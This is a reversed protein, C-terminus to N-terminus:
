RTLAPRTPGTSSYAEIEQHLDRATRADRAPSHTLATAVRGASVIIGLNRRTPELDLVPRVAEAAGDLQDSNLRTLALNCQAGAQDGFAWHTAQPNSFAHAATEALTLVDTGRHNLLVRTEVTYYLQKAEPFTLLGGLHDLDDPVVRQRLTDARTLATTASEEDGLLAAARAELAALWVTVTGRSDHCAAAGQRAYHLAQGAQNSWYSILSKLGLTLGILGTHEAWQAAVGAARAQTMALRADGMDHCGKAMHFSLITALVGLDRGQSPRIRGGDILRFVQDQTAALEDWIASLPVRPYDEVIAAVKDTVLGLTEPGIQGHEAGMAFDAARQAAMVATRRMTDPVTSQEARGDAATNEREHALVSAAPSWLAEVSYGLWHRLVRRADRQPQRRGYYWGEFTTLAPDLNRLAPENGIDALEDAAKRFGPLFARHDGLGRQDLLYRFLTTM